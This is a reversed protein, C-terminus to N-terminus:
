NFDISWFYSSENRPKRNQEMLGHRYNHWYWVTKIATARCYTKFGPLLQGRPKRKKLNTEAIWFGKLNPIFKLM